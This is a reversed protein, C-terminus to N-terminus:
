MTQIKKIKSIGFGNRLQVLFFRFVSVIGDFTLRLASWALLLLLLLSFLCRFSPVLLVSFFFFILTINQFRVDCYYLLSFTNKIEKQLKDNCPDPPALAAVNKCLKYKINIKIMVILLYILSLQYPLNIDWKSSAIAM